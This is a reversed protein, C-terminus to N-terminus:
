IGPIQINRNRTYITATHTIYHGAPLWIGAPRVQSILGFILTRYLESLIVSTVYSGAGDSYQVHVDPSDILIEFLILDM